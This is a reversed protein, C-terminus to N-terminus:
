TLRAATSDFDALRELGRFLTELIERESVGLRRIPSLDVLSGATVPDRDGAPGSAALGLKRLVASPNDSLAFAPAKVRVSVKLSTGLNSPCSTVYGYRPDHVFSLGPVVDLITMVARLRDYADSVRTTKVLSIVRLHDEEGIWAGISRDASIYCARGYPWDDALGGSVMYPDADMPRFMLHSAVLREYLTADILNPNPGAAGLDPSLSYIRGAYLPNDILVQLAASLTQELRLREAREMSGPMAWGQLNRCLRARTSLPGLGLAAVDLASRALDAGGAHLHHDLAGSHRRRILPALVEAFDSLDEPRMLYCGVHSDPNDAASRCCRQLRDRQTRSYSQFLEPTLYQAALNCPHTARAQELRELFLAEQLTLPAGSASEM